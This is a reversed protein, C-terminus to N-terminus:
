GSLAARTRRVVGEVTENISRLELLYTWYDPRSTHLTTELTMLRVSLGDLVVAEAPPATPGASVVLRQADRVAFRTKSAVRAPDHAVEELDRLRTTAANVGTEAASIHDRCRQLDEAATEWRGGSAKTRASALLGAAAGVAATAQAPVDDLDASCALSFERRLQSLMPEIQDIRGSIADLRTRTSSLRRRTDGAVRALHQATAVVDNAAEIARACHEITAAVGHQHPGEFVPQALREARELKQALTASLVGTSRVQSAATRAAAVAERAATTKPAVQGWARAVKTEVAANDQGFRDLQAHAALLAQHATRFADHAARITRLDASDDELAADHADLTDIWMQSAEDAAASVPEFRLRLQVGDTGPHLGAFATVLVDLKKQSIDLAVFADAADYKAARAEGRAAVQRTSSSFM